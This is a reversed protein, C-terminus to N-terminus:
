CIVVGRYILPMGAENRVGWLYKVLMGRVTDSYGDLFQQATQKEYSELVGDNSVSSVVGDKVSGYSNKKAILGILQYTLAKVKDPIVTDTVLKNDTYFDIEAEAENALPLFDVQELVGGMEQYEEYTLYRM